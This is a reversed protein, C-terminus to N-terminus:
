VKGTLSGHFTFYVIGNPWLRHKYATAGRKTKGSAPHYDVEVYEYRPVGTSNDVIVPRGIDTGDYDAVSCWVTMHVSQCSLTKGSGGCPDGLMLQCESYQLLTVLVLVIKLCFFSSCYGAMVSLKGCGTIQCAPINM